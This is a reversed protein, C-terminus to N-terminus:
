YYPEYDALFAEGSQNVTTLIRSDPTVPEARDLASEVGLILRASDILRETEDRDGAVVELFADVFPAYMEALADETAPIEVTRTRNAVDLIGFASDDASGDFRLTAHTGNEFRIRVTSGPDELPTVSVWDADAIYRITDTLHVRYYFYDNYGAGFLTRNSVARPLQDVAPHFPMASGGFLAADPGALDALATVGSTNGVIPKDILTPVNSELFLKALSVHTDWNVTLIMVADVTDVMARPNDYQIAGHKNCFSDIYETTRVDGGDWVAALSTGSREELLGAFSAPHSTDLGLVGVNIM